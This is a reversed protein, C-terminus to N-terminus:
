PAYRYKGLLPCLLAAIGLCSSSLAFGLGYTGLHDRLIGLLAPAFAAGFAVMGYQWGFIASYARLGFFRSTYYAVLDFEAGVTFGLMLVALTAGSVGFTNLIILAIAGIGLFPLGPLPGPTRDLTYGTVLRGVVNSVGLLSALKAAELTTLHQDHLFPILHAVAGSMGLGALISVSSLKWFVPLRFAAQLTDGVANAATAIGETPIRHRPNGLGFWLIPSVILAVAGLVEYGAVWGSREIMLSALRPAVFAGLGQGAIAVGIALGRASSFNAAVPSNVVVPSTGLGIVAVGVYMAWLAGVTHIHGPIVILCLGVSFLSVAALRAPDVRDALRGVFPTGLFIVITFLTAAVATDTRSWGLDQQLTSIFVGVSYLMLSSANALNGLAAATLRVITGLRYERHAKLVAVRGDRSADTIASDNM